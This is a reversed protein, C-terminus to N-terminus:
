LPNQTPLISIVGDNPWYLIMKHKADACADIKLM